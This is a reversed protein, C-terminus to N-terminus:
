PTVINFWFPFDDLLGMFEGLAERRGAIRIDGSALKQDLTSERLQVANLAAKSLTITADAKPDRRGRAYNLVGNEITLVYATKPDQFDLNLVLKRGAAKPGNLRVALYDFLMEPPMAKIADPSATNLGEIKPLGNRLEYAGQLYVSRWPGSEAQYGLQELADAQLERAERNDPEAFVVQNVVQAVWRYNGAAFDERARALVARAGGM